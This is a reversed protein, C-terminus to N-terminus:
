SKQNPVLPENKSRKDEIERSTAAIALFRDPTPPHDSKVFIAQPAEVAMKRWFDEVGATSYGARAMYYMGVYDAEAEFAPAAHARGVQVGAKTFAGKTDVGNAAAVVDIILGPVGFIRANHQQAQIHHQGNHAIEHAIVLALEEDSGALRLMPRNIHISKGDASANIDPLDEVTVGYACAMVPTVALTQEQGARRMVFTVPATSQGVIEGLRKSLKEAAAKGTPAAEGNVSVIVDGPQLGAAAAPGSAIVETVTPGDGLHFAEVAAPRVKDGFAEATEWALGLRPARDACLDQNAVMIRFAIDEVRRAEKARATLVYVMQRKAEDAAADKSVVPGATKPDAWAILGLAAVAVALVKRKM